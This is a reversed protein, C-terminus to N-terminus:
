VSHLSMDIDRQFSRHQIGLPLCNRICQPSHFIAANRIYPLSLIKHQGELISQFLVGRLGLHVPNRSLHQCVRYNFLKGEPKLGSRTEKATAPM